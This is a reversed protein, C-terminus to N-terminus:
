PTSMPGFEWITKEFEGYSVVLRVYAEHVLATPQLTHGPREQALRHAALKKFEDYLLSLLQEATSPDGAEIRSPIQTVEPM